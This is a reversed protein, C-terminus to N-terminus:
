AALRQGLAAVRAETRAILRDLEAMDAPSLRPGPARVRSSAIAGRRRLVEKRIALGIGPQQEHRILPLWADFLDEAGDADGALHRGVVGSLMEPYAFGTMAGDAGRQLEQPLYLGGNGCLISMRPSGARVASLKALGPCDEHKLMVIQPHEATLKLITAASVKVGTLQPYDQFCVPTDPGLAACVAAYYAAVTDETSLSPIPAVMVGAAGEAMAHHALRALADTSPSSVGVIVPMDGARAIFRSVAARSEEPTLKPAEGMVGLITVGDAGRARYHDVLSDISALDLAGEEDFPTAAIVYVGRTERDIPQM